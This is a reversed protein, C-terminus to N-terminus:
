HVGRGDRALSALKRAWWGAAESVPQRREIAAPQRRQREVAEVVDRMTQASIMVQPKDDKWTIELVPPKTLGDARMTYGVM